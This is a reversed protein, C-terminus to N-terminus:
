TMISNRLSFYKYVELLTHKINKESIKSMTKERVTGVLRQKFGTLLGITKQLELPFSSFRTKQLM